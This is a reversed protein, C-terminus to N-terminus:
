EGAGPAAGGGMAGGAPMETVEIDDPVVFESEPVSNVDEITFNVTEEGQKIQRMLGDEKGIWVTASEEEPGAADTEVVWCEVGNITESGTVKADQDYEDWPMPADAAEQESVPVSFGEKTESNYSVMEGGDFDMVMVETGQPTDQEIRMKTAQEGDMKMAMSQMNGNQEITMRFSTPMTFSGVVDEMTEADEPIETDTTAEDGEAGVEAEIDDVVVPTEEVQETQEGCGALVGIMLAAM